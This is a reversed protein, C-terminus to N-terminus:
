ESRAVPPEKSNRGCVLCPGGEPHVTGKEWSWEKGLCGSPESGQVKLETSLHWRGMLGRLICGGEDIRHGSVERGREALEKKRELM